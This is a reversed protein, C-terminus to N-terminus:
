ARSSRALWARSMAHFSGNELEMVDRGFDAVEDEFDGFDLLEM